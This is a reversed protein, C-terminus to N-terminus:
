VLLINIRDILNINFLLYSTMALIINYGLFYFSLINFGISNFQISTYTSVNKM